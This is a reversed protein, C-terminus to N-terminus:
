FAEIPTSSSFSLFTKTELKTKRHEPCVVSSVETPGTNQLNGFVLASYFYLSLKELGGVFAAIIKSSNCCCVFGPRHKRELYICPLERYSNVKVLFGGQIVVTPLAEPLDTFDM